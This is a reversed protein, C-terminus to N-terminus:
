KAGQTQKLRYVSATELMNLAADRDGRGGVFIEVSELSNELAGDKVLMAKVNQHKFIKRTEDFGMQPISKRAYQEAVEGIKKTSFYAGPYKDSLDKLAQLVVRQAKEVGYREFARRPTPKGEKLEFGERALSSIIYEAVKPGVNYASLLSITDYKEVLEEATRIGELRLSNIARSRLGRAPLFIEGIPTQKAM